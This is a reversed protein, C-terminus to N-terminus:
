AIVLDRVMGLMSLLDVLLGSAEAYDFVSLLGSSIRMVGDTVDMADLFDRITSRSFWRDSLDVALGFTGAVAGFSLQKM